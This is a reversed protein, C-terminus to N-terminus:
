SLFYPDRVEHVENVPTCLGKSSMVLILWNLAQRFLLAMGLTM